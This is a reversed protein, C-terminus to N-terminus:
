DPPSPAQSSAAGSSQGVASLVAKLALLQHVKRLDGKGWKNQQKEGCPVVCRLCDEVERDSIM